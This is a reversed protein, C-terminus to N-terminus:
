VMYPQSAHAVLFALWWIILGAQFCSKDYDFWFRKVVPRHDTMCCEGSM